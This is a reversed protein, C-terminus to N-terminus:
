RSNMFLLENFYHLVKKSFYNVTERVLSIEEEKTIEYGQGKILNVMSKCAHRHIFFSNYLPQFTDEIAMSVHFFTKERDVFVFERNKNFYMNLATQDDRENYSIMELIIEKLDKAYGMYTGSNIQIETNESKFIIRWMEDNLVKSLQDFEEISENAVIIKYNTNEVTDVFAERLLNANKLMLVDYADVFCIVDEDDCTNLFEIMKFYKTMYGQWPEGMGLIILNTQNKECSMELWKMYMRRETAVTVIKIM